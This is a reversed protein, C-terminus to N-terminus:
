LKVQKFIQLDKKYKEIIKPTIKKVGFVYDSYKNFLIQELQTKKPNM